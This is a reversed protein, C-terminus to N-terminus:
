STGDLRVLLVMFKVLSFGVEGLVYGIQKWAM